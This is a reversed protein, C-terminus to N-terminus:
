YFHQRNDNQSIDGKPIIVPPPTASPAAIQPTNPPMLKSSTYLNGGALMWIMAAVIVLAYICM